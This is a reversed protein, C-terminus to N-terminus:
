SAAFPWNMRVINQEFLNLLLLVEEKQIQRTSGNDNVVTTAQNIQLEVAGSGQLSGGTTVVLTELSKGPSGAILLTSM